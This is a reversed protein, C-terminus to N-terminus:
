RVKRYRVSSPRGAGRTLPRCRLHTLLEMKMMRYITPTPVEEQSMLYYQYRWVSELFHMDVKGDDLPSKRSRTRRAADFASLTISQFNQNIVMNKNYDVGFIKTRIFHERLQTYLRQISKRSVGSSDAASSVSTEHVLASLIMRFTRERLRSRPAYRNSSRAVM